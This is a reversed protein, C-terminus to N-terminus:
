DFAAEAPMPSVNDPTRHVVGPDGELAESKKASRLQSRLQLLHFSNFRDKGTWVYSSDVDHLHM